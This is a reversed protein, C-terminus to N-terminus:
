EKVEKRKYHNNVSIRKLNNNIYNYVIHM